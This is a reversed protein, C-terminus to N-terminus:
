ASKTLLDFLTQASNEQQLVAGGAAAREAYGDFGAILEQVASLVTEPATDAVISGAGFREVMRAIWSGATSIVPSGHSFADLTVGSIRDAFAAADYLQLCVAGTFLGAYEDPSLTTGRVELHPYGIDELRKLDARIAADYKGAQEPSTQMVVPIQLGLKHMHEVLGVVESFGKDSRAAGAFLLHSFRHASPAGQVGPQSIPYPVVRANAFGAEQFVSTVSPTPGYIEINPQRRAIAKLRAMKAANPKFWHVYLYVKHPPIVGRAAWDIMLLDAYRATSVFLKGPAKILDRYVFYSQVRRIRRFFTKKVEVNNGSFTVEVKRSAWLRLRRTDDASRTLATLFSYCHGAATTLSPEVVNITNPM